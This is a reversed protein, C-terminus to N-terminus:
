MIGSSYKEGIREPPKPIVMIWICNLATTYDVVFFFKGDNEPEYYGVLLYARFGMVSERPLLHVVAQASAMM